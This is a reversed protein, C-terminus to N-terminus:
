NREYRVKRLEFLAQRAWRKSPPFIAFVIRDLRDGFRTLFNNPNSVILGSLVSAPVAFLDYAKFEAEGFMSKVLRIEMMDFPKEDATRAAPTLYRVLKAVPNMGLPETMIFLGGPKLVRLVERFATPCDLHHFIAGGYVLDFSDNPFTLKHADMLHFQIRDALGYQSALKRGSDLEVESINLCHLEAPFGRARDIWVNWASSGIELVRKGGAATMLDHLRDERRRASPGFTLHHLVRELTGRKLGANHVKREREGREQVKASILGGGTETM